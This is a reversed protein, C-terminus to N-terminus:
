SVISGVFLPSLFDKKLVVETGRGTFALLEIAREALGAFNPSIPCDSWTDLFFVTNL